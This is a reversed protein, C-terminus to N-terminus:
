CNLIISSFEINKVNYFASDSTSGGDKIDITELLPNESIILSNLNRLSNKNVVISKLQQLGCIKLDDSLENGCNENIELINVSNRRGEDNLLEKLETGSSIKVEIPKKSCVKEICFDYYENENIDIRGHNWKGSYLAESKENYLVGEGHPTDDLWNGEYLAEGNRLFVGYGNKKGNKWNGIYICEGEKMEYGEGNRPYDLELSDTYGGEYKIRDKDDYEIMTKKKFEKSVKSMEDNSFLVVQNIKNKDYLYGIDTKLHKEDYQCVSILNDTGIITERWYGPKEECPLLECKKKGGEYIYWKVEKGMNCECSWGEAVDNVYTVKEKLCGNKYFFCLDTLKGNKYNLKETVVANKNRVTTKGEIMGNYTKKDWTSGEPLSFGKRIETDVAINVKKDAM